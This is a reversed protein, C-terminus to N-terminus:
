KAWWKSWRDANNNNSNRNWYFWKFKNDLFLFFFVFGGHNLNTELHNLFFFLQFSYFSAENQITYYTDTGDSNTTQERDTTSKGRAKHLTMKLSERVPKKKDSGGVQHSSSQALSMSQNNIGIATATTVANGATAAVGTGSSNVTPRPLKIITKLSGTYESSIKRSKQAEERKHKHQMKAAGAAQHSLLGLTLLLSEKQKILEPTENIVKSANPESPVKKIISISDTKVDPLDVKIENTPMVVPIPPIPTVVIKNEEIMMSEKVKNLIINEKNDPETMIHPDQSISSTLVAATIPVITAPPAPAASEIPEVSISNVNQAPKIATTPLIPILEVEMSLPKDLTGNLNALATASSRPRDHQRQETVTVCKISDGVSIPQSSTVSAMGGLMRSHHQIGNSTTIEIITRDHTQITEVTTTAVSLREKKPTPIGESSNGATDSDEIRLRDEPLIEQSSDHDTEPSNIKRPTSNATSTCESVAATETTCTTTSTTISIPSPVKLNPSPLVDTSILKNKEQVIEGLKPDKEIGLNNELFDPQGYFQKVSIESVGVSMLVPSPSKNKVQATSSESINEKKAVIPITAAVAAGTSPQTTTPIKSSPPPVTPVPQIRLPISITAATTQILSQRQKINTKLKANARVKEKAKTVAVATNPKRITKPKVTPKELDIPIKKVRKRKVIEDDATENSKDDTSNTTTTTTTKNEDVVVTTPIEPSSVVVSIPIETLPKQQPTIDADGGIGSDNLIPTDVLLSHEKIDLSKKDLSNANVSSPGITVSNLCSKDKVMASDDNTTIEVKIKKVDIEIPQPEIKIDNTNSIETAAVSVAAGEEEEKISENLLLEKKIMERLPIDNSTNSTDEQQTDLPAITSNIGGGGSNSFTDDTDKLMVLPVDMYSSTDTIDSCKSVSDSRRRVPLLLESDSATEIKDVKRPKTIKKLKANAETKDKLRLRKRVVKIKDPNPSSMLSKHSKGSRLKKILRESQKREVEIKGTSNRRRVRKTPLNIDIDPTNSGGTSQVKRRVKVAVPSKTSNLLSNRNLRPRSSRNPSNTKSTDDKDDLKGTENIKRVLRKRTTSPTSPASDSGSNPTPSETNLRTKRTTM